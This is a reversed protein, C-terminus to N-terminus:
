VSTEDTDGEEELIEILEENTVPDEFMYKIEDLKTKVISRRSIRNRDEEYKEVMKIAREPTVNSLLGYLTMSPDNLVEHRTSWEMDVIKKVCEWADNLGENYVVDVYDNAKKLYNRIGNSYDRGAEAWKEEYAKISEVLNNLEEQYQEIKESM